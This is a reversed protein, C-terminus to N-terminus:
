QTFRETPYRTRRIRNKKEYSLENSKQERSNGEVSKETKIKTKEMQGDDNEEVDM